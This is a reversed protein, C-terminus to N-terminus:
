AQQYYCKIGRYFLINKIITAIAHIILVLTKMQELFGYLVLNNYCYIMLGISIFYLYKQNSFSGITIIRTAAVAILFYSVVISPFPLASEKTVYIDLIIIGVAAAAPILYKIFSKYGLLSFTFYLLMLLEIPIFIRIIVANSLGSFSFAFILAQSIFAFIVYAIFAVFSSKTKRIAILPIISSFAALYQLESVM